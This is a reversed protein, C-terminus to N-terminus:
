LAASARPSLRVLRLEDRWCTKRLASGRRIPTPRSGWREIPPSVETDAWSEPAFRRKRHPSSEHRSLVKVREDVEPVGASRVLRAVVGFRRFTAAWRTTAMVRWSLTRETRRETECYSASVPCSFGSQSSWAAREPWRRCTHNQPNALAVASLSRFFGAQM